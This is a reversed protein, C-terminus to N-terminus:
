GVIALMPNKIASEAFVEKTARWLFALIEGCVFELFAEGLFEFLVGLLEFFFEGM